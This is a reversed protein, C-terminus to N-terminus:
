PKVEKAAGPAKGPDELQPVRGPSLSLGPGGAPAHQSPATLVDPLASIVSQSQPVATTVRQQHRVAAVANALARAVERRSAPDRFRKAIPDPLAVEVVRAAHQRGQADRFAALVVKLRNADPHAAAQQGALSTMVGTIAARTAREDIVSTAACDGTPAKCSFDGKVNGGLTACGSCTFLLSVLALPRYLSKKRM